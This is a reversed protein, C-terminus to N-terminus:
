QGLVQVERSVTTWGGGPAMGRATIRAPGPETFTLTVPHPRAAHDKTCPVGESVLDYPTITAAAAGTASEVGDPQVCSSSGFSNVVVTFPVGAPVTEPADIVVAGEGAGAIVGVRREPTGGLNQEHAPESPESGGCAATLALVALAISRM